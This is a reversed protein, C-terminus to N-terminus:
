RRAYSVLEIRAFQSRIAIRSLPDGKEFYQAQREELVTNGVRPAVWLLHNAETATRWFQEDDLILFVRVGIADFAGAPTTITDWGGVVAAYNIRGSAGDPHVNNAWLSWRQGRALPYRWRPLPPDFTRVEAELVSGRVLDGPTSWREVRDTDVRPGSRRIRIDIAGPAVAVVERTENWEIPDRFGDRGRYAWRDGVGLAPADLPPGDRAGPTGACAALWAATPAALAALLRRRQADPGPRESM